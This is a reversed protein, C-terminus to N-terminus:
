QRRKGVPIKLQQFVALLLLSTVKLRTKLRQSITKYQLCILLAWIEQSSSIAQQSKWIISFNLFTMHQRSVSVKQESRMDLRDASKASKVKLICVSGM